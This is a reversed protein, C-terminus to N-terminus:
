DIVDEISIDDDLVDEESEKEILAISAVKSDDKLNILRVGQTVRVMVSITETGMRIIIGNDTIVM